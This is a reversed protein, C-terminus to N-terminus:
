LWLYSNVKNSVRSLSFHLTDTLHAAMSQWFLELSELLRQFPTACKRERWTTQHHHASCDPKLDGMPRWKLKSKTFSFTTAYSECWKWVWQIVHLSTVFPTTNPGDRGAGCLQLGEAYPGPTEQHEKGAQVDTQLPTLVEVSWREHHASGGLCVQSHCVIWLTCKHTDNGSYLM